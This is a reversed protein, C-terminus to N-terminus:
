APQTSGFALEWQGRRYGPGPVSKFRMRSSSAETRVRPALRHRAPMTAFPGETGGLTIGASTTVPIPTEVLDGSPIFYSDTVTVESDVALYPRPRWYNSWEV